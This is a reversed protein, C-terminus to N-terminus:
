RKMVAQEQSNMDEIYHGFNSVPIDSSMGEHQAGRRWRITSASRVLFFRIRTCV